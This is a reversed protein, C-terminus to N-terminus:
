RNFIIDNKELKECMKIYVQNTLYCDNLARHKDRAEINYYSVLDDLRNHKLNLVKRAVRLTDIYDNQLCDGLYKEYNDYLFNIDFNVNHGLIIDNNLFEKFKILAEEIESANELMEDTIGTLNKIFYNLPIHPNVLMSFTDSEKKNRVKIASIEIIKSSASSLGTTEIDLVTYNDLNLLLSKGKKDRM